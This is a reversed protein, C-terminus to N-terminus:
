CWSIVAGKTMAMAPPAESISQTRFSSTRSDTSFSTKYVHAKPEPKCCCLLWPFRRNIEARYTPHSIAYIIPNYSASAKALMVPIEATYPTVVKDHHPYIMGLLAVTAYPTWSLLFSAVSIASVKAVQIEQKRHMEAKTTTAGMRDATKQLENHQKALSRVIGIYCYGTIGVPVIYNSVYMCIIYTVNNTDQTLYDFTCSAHFGEPLYHGWGFLPPTAWLLSWLWIIVIYRTTKKKSM